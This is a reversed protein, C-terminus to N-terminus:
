WDTGRASHRLACKNREMFQFIWPNRGYPFAELLVMGNLFNSRYFFHYSFHFSLILLVFLPVIFITGEWEPTFLCFQVSFRFSLVKGRLAHMPTTIALVSSSFLFIASKLLVMTRRTEEAAESEANSLSLM